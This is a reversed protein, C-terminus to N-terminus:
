GSAKDALEVLRDVAVAMAENEFWLHGCFSQLEECRRYDFLGSKVYGVIADHLAKSLGLKDKISEAQAAYDPKCESQMKGTMSPSGGQGGASLQSLDM